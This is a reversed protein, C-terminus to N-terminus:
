LGFRACLVSERPWGSAAVARTNMPSAAASQRPPAGYSPDLVFRHIEDFVLVEKSETRFGHEFVHKNPM